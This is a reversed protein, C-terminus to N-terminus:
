LIKFTHFYAYFMFEALCVISDIHYVGCVCMCVCVCHSSGALADIHVACQQAFLGAIHSSKAKTAPPPPRAQSPVCVVSFFGIFQRRITPLRAWIVIVCVAVCCSVDVVLHHQRFRTQFPVLVSM